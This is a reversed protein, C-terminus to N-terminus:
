PDDPASCKGSIAAMRIACSTSISTAATEARHINGRAQLGCPIILDFGSLDTTANLALGHLDGVERRPRRDGRDEPRRGLRGCGPSGAARSATPRSRAIMVEELRARPVEELDLNIRDPRRDPLGVIQGPGHYTVDGGRPTTVVEVGERPRRYAGAEGDAM